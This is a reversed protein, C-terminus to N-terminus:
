DSDELMRLERMYALLDSTSPRIPEGFSEPDERGDFAAFLGMKALAYLDNWRLPARLREECTSIASPDLEVIARFSGARAATVDFFFRNGEYGASIYQYVYGTAASYSKVRQSLPHPQL